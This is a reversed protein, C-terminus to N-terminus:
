IRQKGVKITKANITEVTWARGEGNSIKLVASMGRMRPHETPNLGESAWTGSAFATTAISAQENNEGTYLAWDVEGSGEAVTAYLEQLLGESYKDGLVLPGISVSSNFSTGDDSEAYRQFRRLYGDRCGLLVAADPASDTNNNAFSCRPQQASPLQFPWFGKDEWDFWWHYQSTGYTSTSENNTVFIYIGNDRVDFALSIDYIRDDLSLLEDPLRERSVRVPTGGGAQMMYLGDRSLFVIEGSPTKCHAFRGIVGIEGSLLEINGGTAWDGRLQYISNTCGFILFDSSYTILARIPESLGGTPANANTGGVARGADAADRGYDFDRPNGQRSAFYAHPANPDGALVIRDRYTAVM